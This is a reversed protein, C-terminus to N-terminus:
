ARGCREQARRPAQPSNYIRHIVLGPKLVLTHPIMPNHEPDTYEQFTNGPVIDSRM